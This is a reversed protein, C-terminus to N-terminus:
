AEVIGAIRFRSVSQDTPRYNAARKTTTRKKKKKKKKIVMPGQEREKKKKITMKKGDIWGLGEVLLSASSCFSLPHRDVGFWVLVFFFLM